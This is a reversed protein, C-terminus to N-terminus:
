VTENKRRIMLKTIFLIKDQELFHLDTRFLNMGEVSNQAYVTFASLLLISFSALKMKDGGMGMYSIYKGAAVGAEGCLGCYLSM